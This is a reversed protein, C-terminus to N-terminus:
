FFSRLIMLNSNRPSLYTTTTLSFITFRVTQNRKKADIMKYEELKDLINLVTIRSPDGKMGRVVDEKSCGSNKRIYELVKWDRETLDIEFM